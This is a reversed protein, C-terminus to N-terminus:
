LQDHVYQCNVSKEFPELLRTAGLHYIYEPIGYVNKPGNSNNGKEIFQLQVRAFNRDRTQSTVNMNSM